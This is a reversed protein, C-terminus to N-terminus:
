GEEPADAKCIRIHLCPAFTCRRLPPRIQETWDAEEVPSPLSSGDHATHLESTRLHFHLFDLSIRRLLEAKFLNFFM